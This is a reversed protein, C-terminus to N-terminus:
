VRVKCNRVRRLDDARIHVLWGPVPSDGAANEVGPLALSEVDMDQIAVRALAMAKVQVPQTIADVRIPSPRETHRRVRSSSAVFDQRPLHPRVNEIDQRPHDTRPSKVVMHAVYGLIHAPPEKAPENHVVRDRRTGVMLNGQEDMLQDSHGPFAEFAHPKQGASREIVRKRGSSGDMVVARNM